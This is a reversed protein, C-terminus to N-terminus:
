GAAAPRLARGRQAADPDDVYKQLGYARAHLPARSDWNAENIALYDDDV